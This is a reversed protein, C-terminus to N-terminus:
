RTPRGLERAFGLLIAKFFAQRVLNVLAQWTGAQPNELPGAVDAKAAVGHRPLHELVESVGGVAAEYLKQFPHKEKTRARTTSTWTASCPNCTAACPATGCGCSPTSRSSAGCWTSRGMPGDTIQWPYVAQLAAQWGQGRPRAADQTGARPQPPTLHVAPREVRVGAVVRAALLARGQVRASLRPLRLLPPDPSTQQVIVLDQVDIALAFPRVDLAGIRVTYGQLRANMHQEAYRRLPEDLWFGAAVAAVMLLAVAGVLWVRWRPM